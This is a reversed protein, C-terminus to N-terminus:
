IKGLEGCTGIRLWVLGSWAEGDWKKSIWNLIIRVDLGLDGLNDRERLDGWWFETHV